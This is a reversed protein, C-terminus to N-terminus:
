ASLGAWDMAYSFSSEIEEVTHGWGTHQESMLWDKRQQILEYLKEEFEDESM